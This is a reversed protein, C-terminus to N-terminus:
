GPTAALGVLIKMLEAQRHTGTKDFIRQLQTRVTTPKVGSHRAIAELSDGSLLRQALEAEAPTLGYLRAVLDRDLSPGHELDTIFAIGCAGRGGATFDNQRPLSAVQLVYPRGGSRRSVLLGDAFHGAALINRSVANSIEKTLVLHERSDEASIWGLADAGPDGARLKLGDGERMVREAAKNLFVLNGRSGFLLVGCGLRDLAAESCALRFEADRIRLMTGVARSIHRITLAHLKRDMETFPPEERGRIVNCLTPAKNDARGDLVVGALVHWIGVRSLFERYYLSGELEAETILDENLTVAGNRVLGKAYAAQAMVDHPAYKTAWLQVDGESIGHAFVFGGDSPINYPTLFLARPSSHLEALLALVHQWARPQLAAAYIADVVESFMDLLRGEVLTSAVQRNM